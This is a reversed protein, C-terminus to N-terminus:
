HNQQESPPEVNIMFHCHHYPFAPLPAPLIGHINQFNLCEIIKSGTFAVHSSPADGMLGPPIVYDAGSLTLAM